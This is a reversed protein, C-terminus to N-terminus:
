RGTLKEEVEVGNVVVTLLKGEPAELKGEPGITLKDLATNEKLQYTNTIDM